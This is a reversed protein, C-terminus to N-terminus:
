IEDLIFCYNEPIHICELKLTDYASIDEYMLRKLSYEHIMNRIKTIMSTIRTKDETKIIFSDENFTEDVFIKRKTDYTLFDYHSCTDDALIMIYTLINEDELRLVTYLGIVM